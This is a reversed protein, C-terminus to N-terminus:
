LFFDILFIFSSNQSASMGFYIGEMYSQSSCEPWKSFFSKSCEPRIWRPAWRPLCGFIQSLRCCLRLAYCKIGVSVLTGRVERTTKERQNPTRIWYIKLLNSSSSFIDLKKRWFYASLRLLIITEWKLFNNSNNNSSSFQLTDRIYTIQPCLIDLFKIIKKFYRLNITLIHM